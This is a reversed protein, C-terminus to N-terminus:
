KLAYIESILTSGDQLMVEVPVRQYGEGEFEDLMSWHASLNDSSFVFGNVQTGEATLEIGPFGMAAGWGAEHLNGLVYGQQWSGGINEMIHANPRGPGLTGYVFLSHM